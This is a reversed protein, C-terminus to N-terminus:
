VGERWYAPSLKKYIIFYALKQVNRECIEGLGLHIRPVGFLLELNM